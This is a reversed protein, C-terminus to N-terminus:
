VAWILRYYLRWQLVAIKSRAGGDEGATSGDLRSGLLPPLSLRLGGGHLLLHIQTVSHFFKHDSGCNLLFWHSLSEVLLLALFPM